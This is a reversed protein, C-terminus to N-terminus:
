IHILSLYLMNPPKIDQHVIKQKELLILGNFIPLWLPLFNEISSNRLKSYYTDLDKGGYEYVLQKEGFAAYGDGRFHECKEIINIFNYDKDVECMGYYKPTFISQPDIKLLTDNGRHEKDAEYKVNFVKGVASKFKSGDKDTYEKSDKLCTLYPMYVCGFTGENIFIM